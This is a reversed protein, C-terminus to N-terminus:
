RFTIVPSGLICNCIGSGGNEPRCPCSRRQDGCPVMHTQDGCPITHTWGTSTGYPFPSWDRPYFAGHGPPPPPPQFTRREVMGCHCCIENWQPPYATFTFSDKRHWCHEHSVDSM